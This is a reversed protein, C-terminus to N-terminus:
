KRRATSSSCLVSTGRRAFDEEVQNDVADFAGQFDGVASAAFCCDLIVYRRLLGAERRVTTGLDASRISTAGALSPDTHRVALCYKRDGDNFLGHGVYYLLVTSPATRKSTSDGTRARLFDRVARLQESAPRPDDFLSLWDDARVALSDKRFLYDSWGRASELFSRRATLSPANPYESAGLLIALTRSRSPSRKSAV